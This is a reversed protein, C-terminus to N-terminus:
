ERGARLQESCTVATWNERDGCGALGPNGLVRRRCGTGPEVPVPVSLWQQGADSVLEAGGQGRHGVPIDAPGLRPPDAGLECTVVAGGRRSGRLGAGHM